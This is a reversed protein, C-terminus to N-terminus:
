EYLNFIYFSTTKTSTAGKYDWSVSMHVIKSDTNLTGGTTVINLTTPDRYVNDVTFKRIFKGDISNPTTTAQWRNSQWTLYYNTNVTTSALQAWSYNRMTKIAEVGEDLLFIAQVKDTNQLSLTLFNGYVNTIYIMSVSIIASAVIVEILSLGKSKNKSYSFVM